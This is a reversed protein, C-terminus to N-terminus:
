SIWHMEDKVVVWKGGTKELYYTDGSASLGAEYYGGDVMCQTDSTCQIVSIGFILGSEGTERDKVGHESSASCESAAKVPPSLDGFRSVLSPPPDEWGGLAPKREFGICYVHTNSQQGSENHTFQYRFTAEAIDPDIGTQTSGAAMASGYTAVVFTAALLSFRLLQNHKM